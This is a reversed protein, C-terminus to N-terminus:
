FSCVCVCVIVGNQQQKKALVFCGFGYVVCMWQFEEARLSEPNKTMLLFRLVPFRQRLPGRECALQVSLVLHRVVICLRCALHGFEGHRYFSLLHCGCEVTHFGEQSFRPHKNGGWERRQQFTSYSQQKTKAFQKCNQRSLWKTKKPSFPSPCSQLQKKKTFAKRERKGSKSVCGNSNKFFLLFVEQQSFPMYTTENERWVLRKRKKIVQLIVM